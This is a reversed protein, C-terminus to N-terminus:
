TASIIFHHVVVVFVASTVHYCYLAAGWVGGRTRVIDTSVGVCLYIGRGSQGGGGGGGVCM